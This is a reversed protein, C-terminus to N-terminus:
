ELFLLRIFIHSIAGFIYLTPLASFMVLLARFGPHAKDQGPPALLLLSAFGGFLMAYGFWEAVHPLRGGFSLGAGLVTVVGMGLTLFGCVVGLWGLIQWLKRPRFFNDFRAPNRALLWLLPLAACVSFLVAVHQGFVVPAVNFFSKLIEPLINTLVM